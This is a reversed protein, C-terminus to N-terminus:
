FKEMYTTALYNGASGRSECSFQYTGLWIPLHFILPLIISNFFSISSDYNHILFRFLPIM